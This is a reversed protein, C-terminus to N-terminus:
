KVTPYTQPRIADHQAANPFLNPALTSCVRTKELTSTLCPRVARGCGCYVFVVPNNVHYIRTINDHNRYLRNLNCSCLRARTTYLCDSVIGIMPNWFVFIVHLIVGYSLVANFFLLIKVKNVNHCVVNKNKVVDPEDVARDELVSRAPDSGLPNPNFKRVRAPLEVQARTWNGFAM